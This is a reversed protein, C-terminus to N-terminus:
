KSDCKIRNTFKSIINTIYLSEIDFHETANYIEQLIAFREPTKRHAKEELYNTFVTKVIEQNKNEM